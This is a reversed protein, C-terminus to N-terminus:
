GPVAGTDRWFRQCAALGARRARLWARRDSLLREAAYHITASLLQEQDELLGMLREATLELTELKTEAIADYPADSRAIINLFGVSQPPAMEGIRVGDKFLRVDQDYDTKFHFRM